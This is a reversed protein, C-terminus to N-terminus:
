GCPMSRIKHKNILCISPKISFADRPYMFWIIVVFMIKSTINDYNYFVNYIIYKENINGSM